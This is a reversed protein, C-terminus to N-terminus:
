RRGRPAPRRTRRADHRRPARPRRSRPCTARSAAALPAPHPMRSLGRRRARRAPAGCTGARRRARWARRSGAARRESARHRARPPPACLRSSTRGRGLEVLQPFSLATSRFPPARHARDGERRRDACTRGSRAPERSARRGVGPTSRAVARDGGRRSYTRFHSRVLHECPQPLRSAVPSSMAWARSREGRLRAHERRPAPDRAHLSAGRRTGRSRRARVRRGHVGCSTHGRRAHSARSRPAAYACAARQALTVKSSTRNLPGPQDRGGSQQHRGSNARARSPVELALWARAKALEARAPAHEAAAHQADRADASTSWGSWTRPQRSSRRREGHFPCSRRARQPHGLRTARSRSPAPRHEPSVPALPVRLPRSYANVQGAVRAVPVTTRSEHKCATTTAGSRHRRSRSSVSCQEARPAARRSLAACSRRACGAATAGRATRDCGAAITPLWPWRSSGSAGARARQSSTAATRRPRAPSRWLRDAVELAVVVPHGRAPGWRRRAAEITM